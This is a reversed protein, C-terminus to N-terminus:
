VDKVILTDGPVDRNVNVTDIPNWVELAEPTQLTDPLPAIDFLLEIQSELQIAIKFGEGTSHVEVGLPEEIEHPIVKAKHNSIKSMAKAFRYLLTFFASEFKFLEIDSYDTGKPMLYVIDYRLMFRCVCSRTNFSLNTIPLRVAHNPPYTTVTNDPNLVRSRRRPPADLDMIDIRLYDTLWEEVSIRFEEITM